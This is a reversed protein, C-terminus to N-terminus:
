SRDEVTIAFEERATMGDPGRISVVAMHDKVLDAGKAASLVFTRENGEIVGGENEVTVGDPLREFAVSVAGPINDRTVMVSVEATSGRTISTDAPKILTLERDGPGEVTTRECGVSAICTLLAVTCIKRYM